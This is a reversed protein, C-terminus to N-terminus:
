ECCVGSFCGDCTVSISVLITVCVRLDCIASLSPAVGYNDYVRVRANYMQGVKDHFVAITRLIGTNREIM